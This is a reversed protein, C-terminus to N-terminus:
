KQASFHAALNEIAEDTLSAVIGQMVPDKRAGSKFDKLQKILYTEDQGALHPYGKVVARGNVGHCATCMSAKKKGADADGAMASGSMALVTIGLIALVQQM